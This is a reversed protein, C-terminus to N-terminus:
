PQPAWASVRWGRPTARVTVAYVRYHPGGLDPHGDTYSQERTLVLGAAGAGRPRLEIVAVTGRVGPKDRALSGDRSAARADARLQEALSGSALRALARQQGAVSRWDWNAWRRAFAGAAASATSIASAPAAPHATAARQGQYPDACGGLACAVLVVASRPVWSSM